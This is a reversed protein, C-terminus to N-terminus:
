KFVIRINDEWRGTPCRLPSQRTRKAGVKKYELNGDSKNGFVRAEPGQERIDM